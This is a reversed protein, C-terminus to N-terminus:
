DDKGEDKRPEFNLQNGNYFQQDKEAAEARQDALTRVKVNKSVSPGANEQIGNSAMGADNGTTGPTQQNGWGLLSRVGGFVAGATGTVINYGGSVASGILGGPTTGTYSEVYGKVPVMIFTCSGRIGLDVLSQEEEAAEINRNPLPTLILKLNYPATQSSSSDIWPRIASNINATPSFTHRLTSGDFTRVQVRIESSKSSTSAPRGDAAAGDLAPPQKRLEERRRREERDSKIQQKIREREDRQKQERDKQMKIYDARQSKQAENEPEAPRETQTTSNAARARAESTAPINRSRNNTSEVPIPAPPATTYPAPQSTSALVHAPPAPASPAAFSPAPLPTSATGAPVPPASEVTSARSNTNELALLLRTTLEAPSVASVGEAQLQAVVLGHRSLHHASIRFRYTENYAFRILVITPTSNVPCFSSLFGAEQSGAELRLAIANERVARSM